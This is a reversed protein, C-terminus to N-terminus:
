LGDHWNTCKRWKKRLDTLVRVVSKSPRVAKFVMLVMLKRMDRARAHRDRPALGHGLEEAGVDNLAIALALAGAVAFRSICPAREVRVEGLRPHRARQDCRDIELKRIPRIRIGHSPGWSSRARRPKGITHFAM